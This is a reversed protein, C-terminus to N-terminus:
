IGSPYTEPLESDDGTLSELPELARTRDRHIVADFQQAIQAHFYHSWRETEPRYIVGIARELRPTDLAQLLARMGATDRSFDLLFDPIGVTHFLAEVSGPLAERVDRQEAPSDWNRAATVTGHFTTFGILFVDDGFRERALQGVNHEGRQSMATARADGLHSNHAWVVIKADSGQEPRSEDLFSVLRELTEMMHSDRVNWSDAHRGFMARYYQEANRVLRANQEAFFLSEPTEATGANVAHEARRQMELLQAVVERECTETLGLTAMRGYKQPDDEASGLCRYRERAREAAPPDVSDLYKVLADVSAHLSYLDMGYFGVPAAAGRQANHERLWDVFDVVVDNRWMWQPFRRFGSLSEAASRDSGHGSTFRHVRWADPWDAEIAVAAVGHESILRKTLEARVQYFEHTGHSAEGILILRAQAAREILADLADPADTLATANSRILAAIAEDDDHFATM